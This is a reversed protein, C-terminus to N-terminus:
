RSSSSPSSSSPSSSSPSSSSAPPSSAAASGAMSRSQQMASDLRTKEAPNLSLYTMLPGLCPDTTPMTGSEVQTYISNVEPWPKGATCASLAASAEAPTAVLGVARDVAGSRASLVSSNKAFAAGSAFASLVLAAVLIGKGYKSWARNAEHQAEERAEELFLDADSTNGDVPVHISSTVTM